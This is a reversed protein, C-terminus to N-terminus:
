SETVTLDRDRAAEEARKHQAVHAREAAKAKLSTAAGEIRSLKSELSGVAAMLKKLRGEFEGCRAVELRLKESASVVSSTHAIEGEPKSSLAHMEEDLATRLAAQVTKMDALRAALDELPAAVMDCAIGGAEGSRDETAAGVRESSEMAVLAEGESM